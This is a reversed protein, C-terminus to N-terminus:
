AVLVQQDQLSVATELDEAGAVEGCEFRLPRLRLMADLPLGDSRTMVDAARGFEVRKRQPVKASDAQQRRRFDAQRYPSSRPAGGRKNPLAYARHKRCATSARRPVAFQRPPVTPSQRGNLARIRKTGLM